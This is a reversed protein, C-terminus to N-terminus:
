ELNPTFAAIQKRAAALDAGTLSPRNFYSDLNGGKLGLSCWVYAQVPDRPVGTGVIYHDGLNSQAEPLGQDAAMRLWKVADASERRGDYYAALFMRALADGGEAAHVMSQVLADDPQLTATGFYNPVPYYNHIRGDLKADLAQTRRQRAKVDLMPPFGHISQRMANWLEVNGLLAGRLIWFSKLANREADSNQSYLNVISLEADHEGQFAARQLWLFARHDDPAVGAGGHYAAALQVAAYSHGAAAAEQFRAVAASPDTQSIALGDAFLAAPHKAALLPEAFKAADTLNRAALANNIQVADAFANDPMGPESSWSALRIRTVARKADDDGKLAAVQLLGRIFDDDRAELPARDLLAALNNAAIPNSLMAAKLLWERAKSEDKVIARTGIALSNGLMMQSYPDGANSGAVLQEFAHLPDPTIGASGLIYVRALVAAAESVGAAEARKLMEIAASGDTKTGRGTLQLCGAALLANPDGKEAAGAWKAFDEDFFGLALDAACVDPNDWPNLLASTIAAARAPAPNIPVSVSTQAKAPLALALCCLLCPTLRTM